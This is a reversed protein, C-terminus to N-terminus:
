DDFPGGLVYKIALRSEFLAAMDAIIRDATPTSEVEQDVEGIYRRLHGVKILREVM